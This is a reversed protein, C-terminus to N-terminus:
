LDLVPRSRAEVGCHPCKASYWGDKLAMVLEVEALDEDLGQKRLEPCIHAVATIGPPFEVPSDLITDFGTKADAAYLERCKGCLSIPKGGVSTLEVADEPDGVDDEFCIEAITRECYVCLHFLPSLPTGKESSIATRSSLIARPRGLHAM